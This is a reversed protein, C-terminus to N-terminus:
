VPRSVPLPRPPSPWPQPSARPTPQQPGPTALLPGALAAASVQVEKDPLLGRTRLAEVAWDRELSLAQLVVEQDRLTRETEQLKAAAQFVCFM